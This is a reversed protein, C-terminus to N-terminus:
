AICAGDLYSTILISSGFRPGDVVVASSAVFSLDLEVNGELDTVVLFSDGPLGLYRVAEFEWPAGFSWSAAAQGSGQTAWVAGGLPSAGM